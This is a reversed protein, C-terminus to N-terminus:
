KNEYYNLFEMQEKNLWCKPKLPKISFLMKEYPINATLSLWINRLREHEEKYANYSEENTIPWNINHKQIINYGIANITMRFEYVRDNRILLYFCIFLAVLLIILIFDMM